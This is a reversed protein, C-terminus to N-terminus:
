KVRGGGFSGNVGATVLLVAFVTKIKDNFEDEYFNVEHMM